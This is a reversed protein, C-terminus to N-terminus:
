WIPNSRTIAAASVSQVLMKEWAGTTSPTGRYETCLTMVAIEAVFSSLWKQAEQM